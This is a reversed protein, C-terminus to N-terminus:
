DNPKTYDWAETVHNKLDSMHESYKKNKQKENLATFTKIKEAINKSHEKIYPENGKVFEFYEKHPILKEKYKSYFDNSPSPKRKEKKEMEKEIFEERNASTVTPM